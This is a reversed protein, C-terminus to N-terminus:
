YNQRRKLVAKLMKEQDFIDESLGNVDLLEQLVYEESQTHLVSYKEILYDVGFTHYFFLSTVERTYCIYRSIYGIFHLVKEPLKVRGYTSDGFESKISNFCEDVDLSFTYFEYFDLRCAFNSYFFRRLFMKSSCDLVNCSKSFIEAQYSCFDYCLNDAKRM